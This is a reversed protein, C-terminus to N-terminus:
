RVTSRDRRRAITARLHPELRAPSITLIRGTIDKLGGCSERAIRKWEGEQGERLTGPAARPPLEQILETRLDIRPPPRPHSPQDAPRKATYVKGRPHAPRPDASRDLLSPRADNDRVASPLRCGLRTTPYLGGSPPRRSSRMWTADGGHAIQSRGAAQCVLTADACRCFILPSTAALPPSSPNLTGPHDRALGGAPKLTSPATCRHAPAPRCTAPTIAGSSVAFALSNCRHSHSALRSRLRRSRRRRGSHTLSPGRPNKVPM